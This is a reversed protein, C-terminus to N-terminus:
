FRFAPPRPAGELTEICTEFLPESSWAHEDARRILSAWQTTSTGVVVCLRGGPRLAREFRPEYIPLSATLVILDYRSQDELQMGDAEIVEIRADSAMASLNARALAAIPTHLELTRVRAGLRALCASVYGSGTGVELAQEGGRPALAQLMRGVVLPRLMRKGCPLAIESDAYALERWREPVFLERPVVRLTELIREDLVDCARIQQEVMRERADQMLM